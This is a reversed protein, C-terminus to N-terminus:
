KRGRLAQAFQISEAAFQLLTRHIDATVVISREERTTLAALRKLSSVALMELENEIGYAIRKEPDSKPVLVRRAERKLHLTELQLMMVADRDMATGEARETGRPRAEELRALSEALRTRIGKFSDAYRRQKEIDTKGGFVSLENLEKGLRLMSDGLKTGSILARSADPLGTTLNAYPFTLRAAGEIERSVRLLLDAAKSSPSVIVKSKPPVEKTTYVRSPGRTRQHGTKSQTESSRTRVMSSLRVVPTAAPKNAPVTSGKEGKSVTSVGKKKTVASVTLPITVPKPASLPREGPSAVSPPAAPAVKEVETPGPPASKPIEVRKPLPPLKVSENKKAHFLPRGDETYFLRAAENSAWPAEPWIDKIKDLTNFVTELVEEPIQLGKLQKPTLSTIKESYSVKCSLLLDRISNLLEVADAPPNYNIPRAVRNALPSPEPKQEGIKGVVGNAANPSSGGNRPLKRDSPTIYALPSNSRSPQGSTSHSTHPAPSSVKLDIYKRGNNETGGRSRWANYYPTGPKLDHPLYKRV